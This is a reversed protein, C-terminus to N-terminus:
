ENNDDLNVKITVYTPGEDKHNILPDDTTQGGYVISDQAYKSTVSLRVYVGDNNKFHDQPSISGDYAGGIRTFGAQEIQKVLAARTNAPTDNHGYETSSSFSRGEGSDYPRKDGFVDSKAIRYSDDLNLNSYVNQIRELRINDSRTIMSSYVAYGALATTFFLVFVLLAYVALSKKLLIHTKTHSIHKTSSKKKIM